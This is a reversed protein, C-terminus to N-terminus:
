KKEGIKIKAEELTINIWVHGCSWCKRKVQRFPRDRIAMFPYSAWVFYSNHKKSEYNAKGCKCVFWRDGQRETERGKYSISSTFETPAKRFGGYPMNM